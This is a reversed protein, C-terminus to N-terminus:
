SSAISANASALLLVDDHHDQQEHHHDDEELLLLLASANFEADDLPRTPCNKNEVDFNNGRTTFHL